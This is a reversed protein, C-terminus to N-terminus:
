AYQCPEKSRTPGSVCLFAYMDIFHVADTYIPANGYYQVRWRRRKRRNNNDHTEINSETLWESLSFRIGYYWREYYSLCNSWVWEFLGVGTCESFGKWVSTGSGRQEFTAELSGGGNWVFVQFCSWRRLLGGFTVSVLLGLSAFNIHWPNTDNRWCRWWPWCSCVSLSFVTPPENHNAQATDTHPPHLSDQQCFRTLERM